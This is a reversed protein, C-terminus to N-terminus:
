LSALVEATIDVGMTTNAFPMTNADTNIVFALNRQQGIRTIAAKINQRLPSLAEDEAKQLLLASEKKFATNKEMLDLLEAQRKQRISPALSAQQDLFLEYKTNFEEEVRKMEEDYKSRLEEINHKAIAYQPMAHLVSDCSLYGFRLLPLAAEAVPTSSSLTAAPTSQASATAGACLLMFAALLHQRM